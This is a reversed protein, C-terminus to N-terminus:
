CEASCEQWVVCCDDLHQTITSSSTACEETEEFQLHGFWSLM